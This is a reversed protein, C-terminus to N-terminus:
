EGPQSAERALSRLLRYARALCAAQEESFELEAEEILRHCSPCAEVPRNRDGSDYFRCLDGTKEVGIPHGCSCYKLWVMGGVVMGQVRKGTDSSEDTM